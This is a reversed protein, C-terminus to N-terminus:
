STRAAKRTAIADATAGILVGASYCLLDSWKFGAGLLLHGLSTGRILELWPARWLQTAEVTFSIAIAAFALRSTKMTPLAIALALFVTTAWLTDGSYASLFRPWSEAASSRSLLGTVIVAAAVLGYPVRKRDPNMRRQHDGVSVTLTGATRGHLSPYVGKRQECEHKTKVAMRAYSGPQERQKASAEPM